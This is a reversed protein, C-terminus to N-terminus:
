CGGQGLSRMVMCSVPFIQHPLLESVEYHDKNLLKQSCGLTPACLAVEGVAPEAGLGHPSPLLALPGGAAGSGQVKQATLLVLQTGIAPTTFTSPAHPHLATSTIYGGGM